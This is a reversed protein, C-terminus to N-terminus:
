FPMDDSDDVTGDAAIPDDGIQTQGPAIENFSICKLVNEYIVWDKGAPTTGSRKKSTVVFTVAVRAGESSNVVDQKVRDITGFTNIHTFSKSESGSTRELTFEVIHYDKNTKKSVGKISKISHIIGEAEYFDSKTMIFLTEKELTEVM